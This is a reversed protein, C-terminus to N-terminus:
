LVLKNELMEKVHNEGFRILLEVNLWDLAM